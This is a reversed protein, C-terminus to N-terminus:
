RDDSKRGIVRFAALEGGASICSRDLVGDDQLAQALARGPRFTGGELQVAAYLDVVLFDAHETRLREALAARLDPLGPNVSVLRGFDRQLRLLRATGGSWAAEKEAYYAVLPENFTAVVIERDFPGDANREAIARGLQAAEASGRGRSLLLGRTALPMALLVALYVTFRRRSTPRSFIGGIRFLGEGAFPLLLLAAGLAHRGGGYGWGGQLRAVALFLLGATALTAACARRARRAGWRRGSLLGVAALLALPATLAASLSGATRLVARAAGVAGRETPTPTGAPVPEELPAPQAGLFRALSKKPTLEFHGEHLSFATAYPAAVVGFSLAVVVACPLRRSRRGCAAGILIVAAGLLLGEPRCLYAVGALTGSGIRRLNRRLRDRGAGAGLALAVCGLAAPLYVGEDMPVSSVEIAAPLVAYLTAAATAAHRGAVHRAIAHLPWVALAGFLVGVATGATEVPFWQSLWALLLPPLPHHALELVVRPGEAAVRTAGQILDYGDNTIAPAAWAALARLGLACVFIWRVETGPRLWKFSRLVRRAARVPASSSDPTAGGSQAVEATETPIGSDAHAEPDSDDALDCGPEPDGGPRDSPVVEPAVGPAVDPVVGPAVDPAVDPAVGPVVAPPPTREEAPRGDRDPEPSSAGPGANRSAPDAAADGHSSAGPATAERPPRGSSRPEDPPEPPGPAPADTMAGLNAAAEGVIWAAVRLGRGAIPQRTIGGRGM